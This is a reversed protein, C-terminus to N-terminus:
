SPVVGAHAGNGTPDPRAEAHKAEFLARTAGAIAIVADRSVDHLGTLNFFGHILGDFRRLVSVNGAASLAAAYAEGEDRLPDFGATVVLAPPLGRLDPAVLPSIRPDHSDAGVSAAYQAHFWEVSHRTLLFGEALSNMSPHARTRDTAPYILLQCAPAQKTGRALLSVVASLNGGASDGGIGVQSAQSGLEGAHRMAWALAAQGDEIPAPFRAEPVLRYEVSLVHFGGHACLLRCGVDHTELTGFVFGGGHFYVLLPATGANTAYYRARLKGTAGDVSLDRTAHVEPLPGRMTVADRDKSRRMKLADEPWPKRASPDVALLLQLAPDLTYGDRQIAKGGSMARQVGPPLHTLVRAARFRARDIPGPHPTAQSKAHSQSMRYEEPHFPAVRRVFTFTFGPWLASNRGHADLYWSKCGGSTWVTGRMEKDVAAVFAATADERPEVTRAGTTRMHRLAGMVHEVQAEMMLLVSSHGLATNPGALLFLNPFGPVTTGVHAFMTKEWTEALTKGTRGRVKHGFPYAQVKFGTGFIVVDVEHEKGEATVVGRPTLATIPHTVIDVNPQSVAPYFNDSVLVRKCGLTYSPTLKRRLAPDQVSRRLHARALLQAVKAVRPYFFALASAERRAWVRARVARQLLKSSRLARREFGRFARDGRPLIWPPNRQFLVVSKAVRQVHPVFQIASAGTGIVAVRKGALDYEHDWLASHFAKGRFEPIGPIAPYAPESLAGAAAVVVDATFTGGSTELLWRERTDDWHASVVEHHFLLKDRVGFRDACAELYAWIESQPSYAHTWDPNRAFSFSYLHSEVDCASGPYSNDRWVGGLQGKRELVVFDTVGEQTLRIATGLGAFGSGVIAVHVHRTKTPTQM